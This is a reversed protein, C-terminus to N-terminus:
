DFTPKYHKLPLKALWSYTKRPVIPRLTSSKAGIEYLAATTVRPSIQTVEPELVLNRVAHFSKTNAETPPKELLFQIESVV